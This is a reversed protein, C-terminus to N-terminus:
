LLVSMKFSFNWKSYLRTCFLRERLTLHERRPVRWLIPFWSKSETGSRVLGGAGESTSAVSYPAM